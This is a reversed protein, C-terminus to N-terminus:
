CKKQIEQVLLVRSQFTKEFSMDYTMSHMKVVTSISLTRGHLGFLDLGYFLRFQGALFTVSHSVENFIKRDINPTYLALEDARVHEFNSLAHVACICLNHLGHKVGQFVHGLHVITLVLIFPLHVIVDDECTLKLFNRM